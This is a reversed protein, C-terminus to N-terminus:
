VRRARGRAATEPSWVSARRRLGRPNVAALLLDVYYFGTRGARLFDQADLMTMTVGQRTVTTVREPLKCGPLRLRSKLLERGLEIVADRAAAPPPAGWSYVAVVTVCPTWGACNAATLWEGDVYYAAPDLLQGGATVQEVQVRQDHRLRLRLPTACSWCWGWSARPAGCSCAYDSFTEETRCGGGTWQQGTLWYLIEAATLLAADWDAAGALAQDAASLDDYTAWPSCLVSSSSVVPPPATIPLAAETSTPCGVTRLKRRTLAPVTDSEAPLGLTVSRSKGPPLATDGEAPLGLVRVKRRTVPLPSSSDAPLGLATVAAATFTTSDSVRQVNNAADWGSFGITITSGGTDTVTVRGYQKCVSGGGANYYADFPALTGAGGGTVHFPSACWVPFGYGSTAKSAVALAHSDGHILVCQVGNSAIHAALDARETGYVPWKDNGATWGSPNGLWPPDTVIVKVPEPQLLEAKVWALQVAGLMTKGPGDTDAGPSRDTNRVDTFIWRVRGIVQSFYLGHRPNRTDALPPHPVVQQYAAISAPAEAGQDGNDGPGADHDSRIYGLLPVERALQAMGAAGVIQAELYGRHVSAATSTPDRYHFDGMHVWALPDWTRLDDLAVPDAMNNGSCSGIGITYSAAAAPLTKARGVPGIGQEYGGAPTDALQWFWAASATLGTVTWDVYGNSDPAQVATYTPGTMVPSASVALRVATTAAVRARVRFGDVTPAGVWAHRVVGIRRAAGPTDAEAPLGLTRTKGRGAPLPVTAAAPLGLVRVKSRTLPLPTDTEAPFGLPPRATGLPIAQDTEAPFGLVRSKSRGAPLTTTTAAPQGLERVKRRTLPLAINTSSVPLGLTIVTGTSFPGLWELGDAVRFTDHITSMGAAGGLSGFQWRGHTGASIQGSITEDPVTGEVNSGAFIQATVTAPSTSNDYQWDIRYWQGAVWSATTAAARTSGAAIDIKGDSTAFRVSGLGTGGTNDFQVVRAPSTTVSSAQVYVSGSHSVTGTNTIRVSSATGSAALALAGAKATATYTVTGQVSVIDGGATVAAGAAGGDFTVTQRVTM